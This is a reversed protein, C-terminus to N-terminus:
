RIAERSKQISEPVQKIKGLDKDYEYIRDSLVDERDVMEHNIERVMQGLHKPSMGCEKSVIITEHISSPLIYFGEPMLNSIKDLVGPCLLASTGHLRSKNTLVFLSQDEFLSYADSDELLNTNKQKGTLKEYTVDLMPFLVPADCKQINSIAKECLEEKTIGWREIMDNKVKLTARNEYGDTFMDIKFIMALDEMQIFPMSQLMERNAKTNILMPTVKEQLMDIDDLGLNMSMINSSRCEEICSAIRGMIEDLPLGEKVADYFDNMYLVPSINEGAIHVNLGTLIVGNNKTNEIVTFEMNQFEEPLYDNIQEIVGEAFVKVTNM